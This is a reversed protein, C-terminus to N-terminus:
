LAGNFAFKSVQHTEADYEAGFTITGGDCISLAQTRWDFPHDPNPHNLTSRDFGNV